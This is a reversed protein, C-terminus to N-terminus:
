QNPPYDRVTQVCSFTVIKSWGLDLCFCHCSQNPIGRGPLNVPRLQIFFPTKENKGFTISRVSLFDVESLLGATVCPKTPRKDPRATSPLPPTTAPLSNEAILKLVTVREDKTDPIVRAHVVEASVPTAVMLDFPDLAAWKSTGNQNANDRILDAFLVARGEEHAGERDDSM